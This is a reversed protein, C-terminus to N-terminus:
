AMLFIRSAIDSVVWDFGEALGDGTVASCGLISWHHSSMDTANPGRLHLAEAIQEFTLAGGL